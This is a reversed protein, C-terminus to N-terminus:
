SGEYLCLELPKIVIRSVAKTRFLSAEKMIYAKAALFNCEKLVKFYELECVKQGKTSTM